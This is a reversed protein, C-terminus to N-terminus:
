CCQSLLSSSSETYSNSICCFPLIFLNCPQSIQFFVRRRRFFIRSFVKRAAQIAM